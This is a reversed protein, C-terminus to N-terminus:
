KKQETSKEGMGQMLIHQLGFSNPMGLLSAPSLGFPGGESDAAFIIRDDQAYAYALTPATDALSSIAKQHEESMNKGQLRGALPQVLPALNHYLLASFNTNGDEPLSAKFRQSNLLTVGSDHFRVAQTVLARTPAAVM